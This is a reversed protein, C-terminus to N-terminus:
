RAPGYPLAYGHWLHRKFGWPRCYAHGAVHPLALFHALTAARCVYDLDYFNWLDYQDYGQPYCVAVQHM